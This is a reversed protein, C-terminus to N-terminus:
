TRGFARRMFDNTFNCIRVQRGREDVDILTCPENKYMYWLRLPYRKQPIELREAAQPYENLLKVLTVAPGTVPKSSSEWREITKQSINMLGAFEKQTLGLKKRLTKIDHSTLTDPLAFLKTGM